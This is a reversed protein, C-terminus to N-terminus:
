PIRNTSDRNLTEAARNSSSPRPRLEAVTNKGCLNLRKGPDWITGHGLSRSIGTMKRRSLTNGSSTFYRNIDGNPWPFCGM